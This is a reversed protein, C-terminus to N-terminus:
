LFCFLFVLDKAEQLKRGRSVNVGCGALLAPDKAAM